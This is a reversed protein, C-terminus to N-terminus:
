QDILRFFASGIAPDLPISVQNTTNSGPVIDWNAGIGFGPAHTQEQLTWGLCYAPWSLQLVSGSTAPTIAPAPIFNFAFNQPLGTSQNILASGSDPLSTIPIGNVTLGQVDIRGYANSTAWVAYVGNVYPVDQYPPVQLGYNAIAVLNVTANTLVGVTSSSGPSIIQLASSLSDTISLHNLNVNTINVYQPCLTVAGRWQWGPDYGGCRTLQCRQAITMGSFVNAGVPFTGAILLGCGYPMDRFVCDEVRNSVGGYIAGGNALNPAQGSCHTIVNLGPTYTQGTYTAPWIAFCDDGTGRATCNTVTNGRMGVCLNCGDAITDRFRCGEVVLGSSNILWAGTKTHEVWIRSITSGTGYSGGLGDNPESDNRYNLFGTIAFDALHINSGAGNLTVRSSPNSNYVSANGLLTTYWMGAGQITTNAPLNITGSIVYTGAPMWVIKGTSIAAGICNRLATTCDTVGDGVAGYSTIALANAPAPLPAPVNELDVLDIIDNAATDDVQKEIRVTDGANIALGTLRVEDFFNRPKGDGPNNSFPYAGYRWSYRSTLPVKQEHTGDGYLLTLTSNTGAGDATDPVSYRLVLTNAAAQATFEVYQGAGDLEVARGGSAEMPVTNVVPAYISAVQAPPGILTGGNLTMTEAEYTTWPVSAGPAARLCCPSTSLFALVAFLRPAYPMTLM